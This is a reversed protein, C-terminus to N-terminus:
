VSLVLDLVALRTQQREVLKMMSLGWDAEQANAIRKVKRPINYPAMAMVATNDSEPLFAQNTLFARNGIHVKFHIHIAREVYYGPYVSRFEAIGDADTRLAGRCHRDDNVPPTHSTEQIAEDVGLNHGSYLGKADCHWVDIVADAIPQCTAANVARLAIVLPAGAHGRAIDAAGPNTCFYFPGEVSNKLMTCHQAGGFDALTALRNSRQSVPVAANDCSLTNNWITKHTVKRDPSGSRETVAAASTARSPSPLPNPISAPWRSNSPQACRASRAASRGPKTSRPPM